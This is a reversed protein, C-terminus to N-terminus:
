WKLHATSHNKTLTYVQEVTVMIVRFKLVNRDGGGALKRTTLPQCKPVTGEGAALWGGIQKIDIPQGKRSM